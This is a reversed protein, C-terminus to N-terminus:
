TRTAVEWIWGFGAAWRLLLTVLLYFCYHLAANGFELDLSAFSALAGLLLVPPLIVLWMWIETPPFVDLAYVFLGWILMYVIACIGARIFLERGRYPELEDDRLFAYGAIVLPPSIVALGLMVFLPNAFLQVQGGTFAAAFVALVIASIIIARVPEFRVNTRAIPKTVLQGSKGRGGSAFQEPAHVQVEASKEPVQILQKCNPCNGSKGAFKESVKFSKRCGKCVVLISM